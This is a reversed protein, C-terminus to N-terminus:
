GRERFVIIKGSPEHERWSIKQCLLEILVDELNKAKFICPYPTGMKQKDALRFLLSGQMDRGFYTHTLVWQSDPALHFLIDHTQLKAMVKEEHSDFKKKMRADAVNVINEQAEVHNRTQIKRGALLIKLLLECLRGCQWTPVVKGPVRGNLVYIDVLFVKHRYCSLVWQEGPITEIVLDAAHLRELIKRASFPEHDPVTEIAKQTAM